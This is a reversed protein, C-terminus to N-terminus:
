GAEHNSSHRRHRESELLKILEPLDAPKAFNATDAAKMYGIQDYLKPNCILEYITTKNEKARNVLCAEPLFGCDHLTTQQKKLGERMRTLREAHAPDEALNKVNHPDIECNFLEEVVKPRFFAGTTADTKGAKHYADWAAMSPAAWLYELFQGNPRFSEYNRIYLYRDDRLARQMDPAEDMRDRAMFVQERAPEQKEGLFVRGQMEPPITSGTITLWTKPM